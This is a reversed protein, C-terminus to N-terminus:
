YPPIKNLVVDFHSLLGWFYQKKLVSRFKDYIRKRTQLLEFCQEVRQKLVKKGKEFKNNKNM